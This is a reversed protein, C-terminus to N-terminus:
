ITILIIIPIFLVCLLSVNLEANSVAFGNFFNHLVAFGCFFNILVSFRKRFRWFRKMLRWMGTILVRITEHLWYCTFRVYTEVNNSILPPAYNEGLGLLFRFGFLFISLGCRMDFGCVRLDAFGNTNKFVHFWISFFDAFWSTCRVSLGFTEPVFFRFVSRFYLWFRFDWHEWWLVHYGNM